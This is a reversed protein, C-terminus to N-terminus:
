AHLPAPPHSRDGRAGRFPDLFQDDRPSEAGTIRQGGLRLRPPGEAHAPVRQALRQLGEPRRVDDLDPAAEAGTGAPHRQLRQVLGQGETRRDPVPAPLAAQGSQRLRALRQLGPQHLRSAPRSGSSRASGSASAAFVRGSTRSAPSIAARVSRADWRAGCRLGPL